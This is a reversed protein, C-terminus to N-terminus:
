ASVGPLLKPPLCVELATATKRLLPLLRKRADRAADPHFAMSTRLYAPEIVTDASHRWQGSRNVLFTMTGLMTRVVCM